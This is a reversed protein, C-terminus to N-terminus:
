RALRGSHAEFRFSAPRLACSLQVVARTFQSSISGVWHLRESPKM